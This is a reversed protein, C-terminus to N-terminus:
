KSLQVRLRDVLAPGVKQRWQQLAWHEAEDMLNLSATGPHDWRGGEQLQKSSAIRFTSVFRGIKGNGLEKQFVQVGKLFPIGTPGQRVQGVPGHGQGPSESTKVPRDLIDMSRVLGLKPSGDSHNEIKNIPADIQRLAARVTAQLTAQAPTVAGGKNLQFPVVLYTSQGDKSRKAKPSALLDQLMNHAPVGDDIWRVHADLVIVWTLDDEQYWNLGDLYMQRRSHLRQTAGDAIHAHTAETLEDGARKIEKTAAASIKLLDDLDSLDINLKIM